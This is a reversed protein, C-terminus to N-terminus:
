RVPGLQQQYERLRAVRKETSPHSAFLETVGHGVASM